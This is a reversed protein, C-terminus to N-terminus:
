TAKKTVQNQDAKRKWKCPFDLPNSLCPRINEFRVLSKVWWLIGYKNIFRVNLLLLSVPLYSPSCKGCGSQLQMVDATKREWPLLPDGLFTLHWYRQLQRHVWKSPPQSPKQDVPSGEWQSDVCTCVNGGFQLSPMWERASFSHNSETNGPERMEDMMENLARQM